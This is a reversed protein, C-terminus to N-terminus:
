VVRVWHKVDAVLTGEVIAPDNSVIEEVEDIDECDFVVLGGTSDIFPGAMVVKRTRHLGLLYDVHSELPQDCILKDALWNPGPKYHAIANGSEMTMEISYALRTSDIFWASTAVKM